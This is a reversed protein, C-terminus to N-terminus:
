VLVEMLNILTNRSLQVTTNIIVIDGMADDDVIDQSAINLFFIIGAKSHTFLRNSSCMKAVKLTLM